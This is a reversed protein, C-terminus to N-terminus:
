RAMMSNKKIKPAHKASPKRLKMVSNRGSRFRNEWKKVATAQPANDGYVLRLQEGIEKNPKGLKTLLRIIIRQEIKEDM